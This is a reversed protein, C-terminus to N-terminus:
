RIADSSKSDNQESGGRDEMAKDRMRKDAMRVTEGLKREDMSCIGLTGLGAHDAQEKELTQLLSHEM